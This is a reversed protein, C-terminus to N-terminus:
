ASFVLFEISEQVQILRKELKDIQKNTGNGNDIEKFLDERREILYHLQEDKDLLHQGPNNNNLDSM